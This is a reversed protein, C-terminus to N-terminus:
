TNADVLEVDSGFNDLILAPNERVQGDRVRIFDELSSMILNNLEPIDLTTELISFDPNLQSIGITVDDQKIEVTFIEPVVEDNHAFRLTIDEGAVEIDIEFPLKEPDITVTNIKAM